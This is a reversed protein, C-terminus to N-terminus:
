LRGWSHCSLMAEVAYPLPSVINGINTPERNEYSNAALLMIGLKTEQPVAAVSDIASAGSGGYGAVFTINVANAQLRTSPWSAGYALALRGPERYTDVSYNTSSWTQTGGTSDVYTYSSVSQLPPLPIQIYQLGSEPDTSPCIEDFSLRWTASVLQRSQFTEAYGRAAKIYVALLSEEDTADIRCHSRVEDESVPELQAATVLSLSM